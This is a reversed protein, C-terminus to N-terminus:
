TTEKNEDIEKAISYGVEMGSMFVLVHLVQEESMEIIKKVAIDKLEM